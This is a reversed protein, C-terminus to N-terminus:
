TNIDLVIDISEKACKVIDQSLYKENKLIRSIQELNREKNIADDIRYPTLLLHLDCKMVLSSIGYLQKNVPKEDEPKELLYGNETVIIRDELFILGYPLKEVIHIQPRKEDAIYLEEQIKEYLSLRAPMDYHSWCVLPFPFPEGLKWKNKTPLPVIFPKSHPYFLRM